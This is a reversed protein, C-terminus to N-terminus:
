FLSFNYELMILQSVPKGDKEAPFFRINRAAEIASETLGDKLEKTVTINSVYGDAALIAELKVTGVIRHARAQNTYYPANKWVVVARRTVENPGFAHGPISDSRQAYNTSQDEPRRLRLSSVFRDVISNTEELTALTILYVHEKTAFRVFRTTYRGYRSEYSSRYQRATIGDFSIDREFVAGNDAHNLLNGWLRQPREAKYSEIVFVLGSGYGSYERQALSREHDSQDPASVPYTRVTPLAPVMLTLEEGEPAFTVWALEDQFSAPIENGLASYSQNSVLIAASAFALHRLRRTNMTAGISQPQVVFKLKGVMGPQLSLSFNTTCLGARENM